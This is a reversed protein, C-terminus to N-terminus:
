QAPLVRGRGRRPDAAPRDHEEPAETSAPLPLGDRKSRSWAAAPATRLGPLLPRSPRTEHLPCTAPTTPDGVGDSRRSTSGELPLPLVRRDGPLTPATTCAPEVGTGRRDNEVTRVSAGSCARSGRPGATQAACGDTVLANVATAIFKDDGTVNRCVENVSVATGETVATSELYVSVKEMLRTPRWEDGQAVTEPPEFSWTIAHTAPDSALVLDAARPRNLRGPRDRHTVLHYRGGKGRRLPVAVEFGLHVDAGGIKRESGIAYAGRSEKSKTVHDLTISAIDRKWFNWVYLGAWKEVDLRKSDDLGQLGYAGM